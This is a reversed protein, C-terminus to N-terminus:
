SRARRCKELRRLYWFELNKIVVGADSGCWMLLLLLVWVMLGIIAGFMM